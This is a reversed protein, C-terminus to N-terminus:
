NTKGEAADVIEQIEQIASAPTKSWYNNTDKLLRLCKKLAELLKQDTVRIEM